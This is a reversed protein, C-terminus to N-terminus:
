YDLDDAIRGERVYGVLACLAMSMVLGLVAAFATMAPPFEDVVAFVVRVALYGPFAIVMCWFRDTGWRHWAAGVLAGTVVGGITHGVSPLAGLTETVAFIGAGVAMARALSDRAFKARPHARREVRAWEARFEDQVRAPLARFWDQEWVPVDDQAAEPAPSEVTAPAAAPEPAVLPRAYGKPV